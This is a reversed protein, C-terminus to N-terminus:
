KLCVATDKLVILNRTDAAANLWVLKIIVTTIFQKMYATIM